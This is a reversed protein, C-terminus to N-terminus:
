SEGRCTRLLREVAVTHHSTALAAIVADIVSKRGTLLHLHAPTAAARLDAPLRWAIGEPLPQGHLAATLAERIDAALAAKDTTDALVIPKAM